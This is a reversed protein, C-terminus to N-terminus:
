VECRSKQFHFNLDNTVQVTNIQRTDAKVKDANLAFVNPVNM